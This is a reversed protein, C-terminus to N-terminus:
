SFCAFRSSMFHTVRTRLATGAPVSAIFLLLAASRGRTKVQADEDRPALKGYKLVRQLSGISFFTYYVGYLVWFLISIGGAFLQAPLLILAGVM